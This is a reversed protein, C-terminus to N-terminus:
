SGGGQELDFMAHIVDEIKVALAPKGERTLLLCRRLDGWGCGFLFSAGSPDKGIALVQLATYAPMTETSIALTITAAAATEPPPSPAGLGDM